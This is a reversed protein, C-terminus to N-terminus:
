DNAQIAAAKEPSPPFFRVLRNMQSAILAVHLRDTEVMRFRSIRDILFSLATEAKEYNTWLGGYLSLDLSYRRRFGGSQERDHRMNSLLEFTSSRTAFHDFSEPTDLIASRGKILLAEPYGSKRLRAYTLHERCIIKAEIEAFWLFHPFLTVSCNAVYVDRGALQEVLSKLFDLRCYLPSFFGNGLVVVNEDPLAQDPSSVVRHQIGERHLLRTFSALEAADGANGPLGLIAPRRLNGLWEPFFKKKEITGLIGVTISALM